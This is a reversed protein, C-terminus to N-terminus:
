MEYFKLLFNLFLVLVCYFNIYIHFSDILPENM